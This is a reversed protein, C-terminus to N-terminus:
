HKGSRQRLEDLCQEATGEVFGEKDLAITMMGEICLVILSPTELVDVVDSFSITRSNEGNKVSIEEGIEIHFLPAENPYMVKLRDKETQIGTKAKAKLLLLVAIPLILIMLCYINKTFMALLPIMVICVLMSDLAKKSKWKWWAGVSEEILEPTYRYENVFHEM